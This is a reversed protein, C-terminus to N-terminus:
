PIDGISIKLLSRCDKTFEVTVDNLWHIKLVINELRVPRM